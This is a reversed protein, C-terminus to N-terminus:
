KSHIVINGGSLVTTPDASDSKDNSGAQNDYVIADNNSRDWIKIRFKDDGKNGGDTATLMFGYDGEGNITGIGKYTAKTGSVVLWDYSTSKFNLNGAKFQFETQGTPVKAGKQYKAVFGFTAKGTLSEDASYAGASSIIWGGGTVFGASPDYVVVYQYIETDFGNDDDTVTLTVTYIGATTYTHSDSIPSTATGLPISTETGDGWSWVASHTDATGPDTFTANITAPTNMAVPGVPGTLPTIM